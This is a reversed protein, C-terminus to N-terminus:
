KIGRNTKATLLSYREGGLFANMVFSYSLHWPFLIQRVSINKDIRSVLADGKGSLNKLSQYIIEGMTTTPLPELPELGRLVFTEVM